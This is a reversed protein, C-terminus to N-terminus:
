RMRTDSSTPWRRRTLTRAVLESPDFATVDAAEAITAALQSGALAQDLMLDALKTTKTATEILVNTPTLRSLTVRRQELFNLM